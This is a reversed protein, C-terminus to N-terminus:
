APGVAFRRIVASVRLATLETTTASWTSAWPQEDSDGGGATVVVCGAVGSASGAAGSCTGSVGFPAVAIRYPPMCQTSSRARDHELISAIVDPDEICAIVRLTGGCKPCTEIDISFVRKLRQM